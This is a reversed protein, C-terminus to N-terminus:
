WIIRGSLFRNVGRRVYLDASKYEESISVEYVEIWNINQFAKQPNGNLAAWSRARKEYETIYFGNGYDNDPKGGLYHPSEIVHGSGHFVKIKDIKM